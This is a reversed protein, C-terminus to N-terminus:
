NSDYRKVGAEPHSFMVVVALGPLTSSSSQVQRHKERLRRRLDKDSGNLIGSVELRTDKQFPPLENDEVNGLWYDHGRDLGKGKWSKRIVLKDDLHRLLAIAVGCAGDETADQLDFHTNKTQRTTPSWKLEVSAEKAGSISLTVGQVHDNEELCVAAAEAFVGGMDPSLGPAVGDSLNDLDLQNRKTQVMLYAQLFVERKASASM